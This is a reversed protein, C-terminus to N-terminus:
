ITPGTSISELSFLLLFGWPSPMRATAPTPVTAVADEGDRTIITQSPPSATAVTQHQEGTQSPSSATAVTKVGGFPSM